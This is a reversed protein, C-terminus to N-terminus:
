KSNRKFQEFAELLGITSKSKLFLDGVTGERDVLNIARIGRENIMIVNGFTISNGKIYACDIMLCEKFAGLVRGCFVAPVYTSIQDTNIQEYSDGLYIEVLQDKLVEFVFEAMTRDRPFTALLNKIREENTSKITDM